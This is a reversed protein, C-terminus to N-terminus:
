TQGTSKENFPKQQSAHTLLARKHTLAEEHDKVAEVKMNKCGAVFISEKLTGRETQIQQGHCIERCMLAQSSAVSKGINGSGGLLVRPQPYM